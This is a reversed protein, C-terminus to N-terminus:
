WSDSSHPREGAVEWYKYILSASWECATGTGPLDETSTREQGHTPAASVADPSLSSSREGRIWPPPQELQRMEACSANHGQGHERQSLHSSSAQATQMRIRGKERVSLTNAYLEEIGAWRRDRYIDPNKKWHHYTEDVVEWAARALQSSSPSASTICIDLLLYALATWEICPDFFWLWKRGRSDRRLDQAVGMVEECAERYKTCLPMGKPHPKYVDMTLKALILQCSKVMTRDLLVTAYRHSLYQKEIRERFKDLAEIKQAGTMAQYSNSDCFTDSFLVRRAFNSAEFRVLYFLMESRGLQSIPPEGMDPGLAIDNVNLPLETPFERGSMLPKYGSEQAYQVDLTCIQWWLRRRM